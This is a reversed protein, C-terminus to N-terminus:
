FTDTIDISPEAEQVPAVHGTKSGFVAGELKTVRANLDDTDVGIVPTFNLYKGDKEIVKINVVSGKDWAQTGEVKFTNLWRDNVQIDKGNIDQITTEVIKLGVTDAIGRVTERQSRNIADITVKM